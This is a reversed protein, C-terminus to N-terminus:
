KIEYTSLMQGATVVHLVCVLCACVTLLCKVLFICHLLHLLPYTYYPLEPFFNLLHTSICICMCVYIHIYLNTFVLCQFSTFMHLKFYENHNILHLEPPFSKAHRTTSTKIARLRRGCPLPQVFTELLPHYPYM